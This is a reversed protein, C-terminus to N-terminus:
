CDIILIQYLHDRIKFCSGNNMKGIENTASYFNTM